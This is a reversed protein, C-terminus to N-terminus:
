LYRGRSCAIRTSPDIMCRWSRKFATVFNDFLFLRIFREFQLLNIVREIDIIAALIPILDLIIVVVYFVIFLGFGAACPALIYNSLICILRVDTILDFLRFVERQRNSRIFALVNNLDIVLFNAALYRIFRAVVTSKLGFFVVRFIAIVGGRKVALCCAFRAPRKRAPLRLDRILHRSVHGIGRLPLRVRFLFRFNNIYRVTVARKPTAGSDLFNRLKHLDHRALNHSFVTRNDAILQRGYRGVRFFSIFKVVPNPNRGFLRNFTRTRRQRIFLGSRKQILRITQILIRHEFRYERLLGIQAIRHIVVPVPRGSLNRIGLGNCALHEPFLHRFGGDPGIAVRRYRIIGLLDLNLSVRGIVYDIEVIILVDLQFRFAVRLSIISFLLANGAKGTRRFLSIEARDFNARISRISVGIRRVKRFIRNSRNVLRFLIDNRLRRVALEYDVRARHRQRAFASALRVVARRQRLGFHLNFTAKNVAFHQTDHRLACHRVNGITFHRVRDEEIRASVEFFAVVIDHLVFAIQPDRRALHLQGGFRGALGVVARHQHLGFHLNFTAKDFAFHRIDLRLAFHRVNGFTFHRVRDGERLAVLEFRVVVCDGLFFAFQRDRRKVSHNHRDLAPRLGHRIVALLMRSPLIINDADAVRQVFCGGAFHGVEPILVGLSRASRVRASVGHPPFSLVELVRIRVERVHRKVNGVAPELDVRARHRQSGSRILLDVVARRQRLFFHGCASTFVLAKNFTLTRRIVHRSALRVNALALVREGVRQVLARLRVVVLDLSFITRQCDRRDRGFHRHRDRAVRSGLLIISGLLGRLAVVHRDAVRQILFGVERVASGRFHLASVRVGVRHPQGSRVERVLAGVERVNLKNHGVAAQRDVLAIHHQGGFRGALRVIAGRQRLRIHRYASTFVLAKNGTFHRIDLRRSRDCIDAANRVLDGERFAFLEVFVVVSDLLFFARQRDCRGIGFHNYRDRALRVIHQIVAVRM